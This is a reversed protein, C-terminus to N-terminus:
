SPKTKSREEQREVILAKVYRRFAQYGFSVVGEHRLASYIALVSWGDEIASQVEDRIELFVARNVRGPSKRSEAIAKAAIRQSLSVEEM